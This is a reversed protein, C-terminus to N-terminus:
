RTNRTSQQSPMSFAFSLIRASSRPSLLSGPFHDPSISFIRCDHVAGDSAFAPEMRCPHCTTALSQAADPLLARRLPNTL